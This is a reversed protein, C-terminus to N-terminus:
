SGLSERCRKVGQAEGRVPERAMVHAEVPKEPQVNEATEPHFVPQVTPPTAVAVPEVPREQGGMGHVCFPSFLFVISLATSCNM